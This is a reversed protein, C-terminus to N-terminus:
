QHAPASRRNALLHLGKITLPNRRLTLRFRKDGFINKNQMICILKKVTLRNQQYVFSIQKTSFLSFREISYNISKKEM